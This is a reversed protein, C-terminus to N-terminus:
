PAPALTPLPGRLSTTGRRWCDQIHASFRGDVFNTAQIGFVVEGRLEPQVELLGGIVERRMLQEHVADAEVHESYFYRCAAPADLRDLVQLMRKAGPASAIEGAAFHGVIAGRRARHLGLYSMLNVVALTSGPVAEVYGGYRPDLDAAAMLDAFLQSHVHEARGAGFEDYEVAVLAAKARGYLRPIVWAQPDSEKLQYISRHAFVERVQEWTGERRLHHSLGSGDVPEILLADLEADLDTGGAVHDRVFGCFAHELAGRLRLLDPQWEWDPDVGAFGEYHLEYCMYLALQLDDGLPDAGAVDGLAAEVPGQCGGTAPGALVKTVLESLPGRATPVPVPPRPVSAPREDSRVPIM